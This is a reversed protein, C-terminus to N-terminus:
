GALSLGYDLVVRYLITDAFARYLDHLGFDSTTGTPVNLCISCSLGEPM